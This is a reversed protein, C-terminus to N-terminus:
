LTKMDVIKNFNSGESDQIECAQRCHIMPSHIFLDVKLSISMDIVLCLYSVEAQVHVM